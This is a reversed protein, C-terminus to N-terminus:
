CPAVGAGLVRTGGPDSGLVSCSRSRPCTDWWSRLGVSCSRSRPCTDWRSRLGVSCSRSRPCTDWRSRLGVSCSRSRPCTDWRSRLEVSCSRSRPCTDWRSRLGVSCSRSRPCTDWRSRLGVSCSRSRPCTDWWSRLGISCSRSRPCTDWRSRLGVRLLEQESSVHGVPIQAWRLLEQESSVHGVLIQAWRLLEQESSVHGVPIQAWRLLEQESSVHGVPIQAWRLLEQESSVHGVPIQAWRLLEQESSVHGVPIQAWRLLESPVFCERPGASTVENSSPSTTTRSPVRRQASASSLPIKPHLTSFDWTGCSSSKGRGWTGGIAVFRLFWRHTRSFHSHIAPLRAGLLDMLVLLRMAGLQTGGPGHRANEMRAALHRAGYLSDQPSWEEFAEEGDLFLLQLTVEAGADKARRLPRDLVAALELLLACPVASDTAGVFVRHGRESTLAKTDYHCALVLRYPAAPAVTAVVNTFTVPGRPTATQFADFELHWAARLASLCEAIHQRAARSGSGGPIREHLLPRLFRDRLRNPNLPALLARLSVESRANLPTPATGPEGSPWALYLLAAAAAFALVPGPARPFRRLRARLWLGLTPGPGPPATAIIAAGLGSGAARPRRSGGPGKRM